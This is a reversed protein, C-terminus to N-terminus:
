VPSQHEMNILGFVIALKESHSALAAVKEEMDVDHLASGVNPNYGM